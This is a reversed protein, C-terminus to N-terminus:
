MCLCPTGAREWRNQQGQGGWWEQGRGEKQKEYDGWAGRARLTNHSVKCRQCLRLAVIQEGGDQGLIWLWYHSVEQRERVQIIWLSMAWRALGGWWPPRWRWGDLFCCCHHAKHAAGWCGHWRPEPTPRQNDWALPCGMESISTWPQLARQSGFVHLLSKSPAELFSSQEGM